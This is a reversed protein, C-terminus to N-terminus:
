YQVAFPAIKINASSPMTVGLNNQVFVKYELAPIMVPGYAKFVDGATIANTSIPVIFDPSRSMPTSAVTREFTTGGDPSVLFWGAINGAISPGTALSTGCTLWVEGWIGQGTMSSTIIGSSTGTTTSSSITTGSSGLSNLESSLATIAPALLGNFPTGGAYWLFNTAM